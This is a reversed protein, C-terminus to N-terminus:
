SNLIGDRQVIDEAPLIINHMRTLYIRVFLMIEAARRILLKLLPLQWRIRPSRASVTKSGALYSFLTM